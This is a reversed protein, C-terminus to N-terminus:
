KLTRLRDGNERDAFKARDFTLLPDVM